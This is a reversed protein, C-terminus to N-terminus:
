IPRPICQMGNTNCAMPMLQHWSLGPHHWCPGGRIPWGMGPIWPRVRKKTPMCGTWWGEGWFESVHRTPARQPKPHVQVRVAQMAKHPFTTGLPAVSGGDNGQWSTGGAPAPSGWHYPLARRPSCRPALPRLRWFMWGRNTPPLWNRCRCGM